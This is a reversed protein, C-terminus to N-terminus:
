MPPSRCVAVWTGWLGRLSFVAVGIGVTILLAAGPPDAGSNLVIGGWSVLSLSTLIGFSYAMLTAAEPLAAATILQDLRYKLHHQIAWIADM